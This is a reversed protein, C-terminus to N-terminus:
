LHEKEKEGETMLTRYLKFFAPIPRREKEIQDSARPSGQTLLQIRYGDSM